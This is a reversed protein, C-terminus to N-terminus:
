GVVRVVLRRGKPGPGVDVREGLQVTITGMPVLEATAKM